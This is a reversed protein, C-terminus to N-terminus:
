RGRADARTLWLEAELRYYETAGVDSSRGFGLRRIKTVLEELKRMRALHDELAIRHDAPTEGLERRADLVLRSWVYVQFTDIRAQQYYSWTIEYQKVAARYRAEALPSPQAPEVTARPASPAFAFGAFLLTLWALPRRRPSCM